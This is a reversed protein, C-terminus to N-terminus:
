SLIISRSIIFWIHAWPLTGKGEAGLERDRYSVGAQELVAADTLRVEALSDGSCPVRLGLACPRRRGKSCTRGM